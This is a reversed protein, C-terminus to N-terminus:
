NYFFLKSIYIYIYLLIEYTSYTYPSTYGLKETLETENVFLFESAIYSNPYDSPTTLAKKKDLDFHILKFNKTFINTVYDAVDKALDPYFNYIIIEDDEGILSKVKKLHDEVDTTTADSNLLTFDGNYAFQTLYTKLQNNCENSPGLIINQKYRSKLKDIVLFKSHCNDFGYSTHSLCSIHSSSAINISSISFASSISELLEPSIDPMYSYVFQYDKSIQSYTTNVTDVDVSNISVYDVEFAATSMSSYATCLAQFESDLTSDSNIFKVKVKACVIETIIVFYVFFNM